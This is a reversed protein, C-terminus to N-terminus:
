PRASEVRIEFLEPWYKGTVFLRDGEPDYAIGNLVEAGRPGRNEAQVKRTLPRLDLWGLVKGSQPDIRAIRGSRWVNAYIQGRVYELENLRRVAMRGDTVKLQRVEQFNEPNLFRLVSTGDSMILLTGDHTLGWGEGPYRFEDKPNLTAKDYVFGVGARWTLQVLRDKWLALGEGFYQGELESSRLVEGTELAVKRLSSEGYQGTSEYLFGGDYVLGQTYAGRDHPYSRVVACREVPVTASGRIAILTLATLAVLAVLGLFARTPFRRGPRAAPAKGHKPREKPTQRKANM